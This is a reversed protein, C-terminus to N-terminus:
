VMGYSYEPDPIATMIAPHVGLVNWGVALELFSKMSFQWSIPSSIDFCANDMTPPIARTTEIAAIRQADFIPFNSVIGAIM